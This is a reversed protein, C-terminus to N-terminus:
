GQFQCYQFPGSGSWLEYHLGVLYDNGEWTNTSPNLWHMEYGARYFGAPMVAYGADNFVAPSNPRATGYKWTGYGVAKWGTTSTWKELRLRYAVTQSSYRPSGYMTPNYFKMVHEYTTTPYGGIMTGGYQIGGSWTRYGSTSCDIKGARHSGTIGTAADAEKASLAMMLAVMAALVFLVRMLGMRSNKAAELM